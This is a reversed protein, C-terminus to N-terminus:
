IGRHCRLRGYSQLRGGAGDGFGNQSFFAERQFLGLLKDDIHNMTM